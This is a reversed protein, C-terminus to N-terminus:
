NAPCTLASYPVGDPPGIAEPLSTQKIYSHTLPEESRANYQQAVADRQNKLGLLDTQRQSAQSALQGFPDNAPPHAQDADVQAQVNAIQNSLAVVSRCTDRFYDYNAATLAGSRATNSAAVRGRVGATAFVTLYIGISVAVVVIVGLISALVAVTTSGAENKTTYRKTTM